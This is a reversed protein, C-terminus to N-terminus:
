EKLELDFSSYEIPFNEFDLNKSVKASPLPPISSIVVPTNLFPDPLQGFTCSVIAYFSEQSDKGKKIIKEPDDEPTALHLQPTSRTHRGKPAV